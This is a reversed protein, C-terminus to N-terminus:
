GIGNTLDNPLSYTNTKTLLFLFILSSISARKLLFIGPTGGFRDGIASARRCDREPAVLGLSWMTCQCLERCSELCWEMIVSVSGPDDNNLSPVCIVALLVTRTRKEIDRTSVPMFATTDCIGLGDEEYLLGAPKVQNWDVWRVLFFLSLTGEM